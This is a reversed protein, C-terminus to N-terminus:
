YQVVSKHISRPTSNSIEHLHSGFVRFEGAYWIRNLLEDDSHFYGRYARLDQVPAATFNTSISTVEVMSSTNSILSLYKFAGREHWREVSYTGPGNGVPLWLVEDLGALATADSAQGSIWLSSETYTLGIVADSSSVEGVTVSVVGAINRGYDFTVSSPGYFYASGHKAGALSEAGSVTGNVRHVREPYLTRSDPALIYESYRVAMVFSSSYFLCLLPHLIYMINSSLFCKFVFALTSRQKKSGDLRINIKHLNAEM